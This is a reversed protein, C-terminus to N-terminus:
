CTVASWSPTKSFSPLKVNPDAQTEPIKQMKELPLQLLHRIALLSGGAERREVLPPFHLYNSILKIGTQHIVQLVNRSKGM